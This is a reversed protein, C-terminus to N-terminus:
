FADILFDGLHSPTLASPPPSPAIDSAGKASPVRASSGKAGQQPFSSYTAFWDQQHSTAPEAEAHAGPPALSAPACRRTSLLDFNALIERAATATDPARGQETHMPSLRIDPVGAGGGGLHLPPPTTLATGTRHGCALMDLGEDVSSTPAPPADREVAVPLADGGLKRASCPASASPMGFASLDFTSDHKASPCGDGLFAQWAGRLHPDLMDSGMPVGPAPSPSPQPAVDSQSMEQMMRLILTRREETDESCSALQTALLAIRKSSDKAAPGQADAGLGASGAARKRKKVGAAAGSAAPPPPAGLALVDLANVSLPAQSALTGDAKLAKAPAAGKHHKPKPSMHAAPRASAEAGSSALADGAPAASDAAPAEMVDSAKSGTASASAPAAQQTAARAALRNQKRIASNYRNKIANDTRGPMYKVIQSWHTGYKAVMDM